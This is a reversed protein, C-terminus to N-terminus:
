GLMDIWYIFNFLLYVVFYGIFSRFDIKQFIQVQDDAKKSNNNNNANSIKKTKKLKKLAGILSKSKRHRLKSDNGVPFSVSRTLGASSVDRVKDQKPTPSQSDMRRKLTIIM